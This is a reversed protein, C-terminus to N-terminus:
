KVEIKQGAALQVYAKKWDPKKGLQMRVRKNKGRVMVTRVGTVKVKYIAEIARKVDVKTACRGIRFQYCGRGSLASGKESHLLAKIIDYASHM